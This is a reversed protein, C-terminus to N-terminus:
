ACYLVLTQEKPYKEAWKELAGPDERVAGAIKRASGDWDQDRRVDIVVLGPEGLRAKLEEKGMRPADGREGMGTAVMGVLIAMVALLWVRVM